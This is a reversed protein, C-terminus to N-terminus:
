RNLFLTKGGLTINLYVFDSEIPLTTYSQTTQISGGSVLNGPLLPSISSLSFVSVEVPDTNNSRFEITSSAPQVIDSGYSFKTMALIFFMFKM